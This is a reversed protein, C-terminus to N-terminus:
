DKKNIFLPSGTTTDVLVIETETEYDLVLSKNEANLASNSGGAQTDGTGSTGQSEGARSEIKIERRKALHEELGDTNWGAAEYLQEVAKDTLLEVSGGRQLVKSISDFDPRSPDEAIFKPVDKWSVHVGIQINNAALIRPVLQNNIVDEKWKISRDIYYDHTTMQTGALANSGHGNQGLLLFGAGFNNYIAKRRQNILEETRYQKGGGEIGKFELDYLPKGKDDTDSTLIIHTSKGQQLNAADIQIDQYEKADEPYKESENAREILESPVRIIVIGGFDKSVGVIEYHEILKKEVWADYIQLYPSSGQPNDFSPNYKFHLMQDRHIFPYKSALQNGGILSGYPISNMYSPLNPDLDKVLMPKQVVGLFDRNNKDFVWGYVSRPHRPALKHLVYNGAYPGNKAKRMVINEIAFGYTLDTAATAMAEMWTGYGTCRINYDLFEALTDSITSGSSKFGGKSLASVVQINTVDTANGVADDLYMNEVTCVRNEMKLDEKRLDQIFRSASVIGTQGIEKLLSKNDGSM